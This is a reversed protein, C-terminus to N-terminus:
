NENKSCHAQNRSQYRTGICQLVIFNFQIFTNANVHIPVTRYLDTEGPLIGVQWNHGNALHETRCFNLRVYVIRVNRPWDTVNAFLLLRVSGYLHSSLSRCSKKSCNLFQSLKKRRRQFYLINIGSSPLRRSM